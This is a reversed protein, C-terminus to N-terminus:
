EESSDDGNDDMMMGGRRYGMKGDRMKMKHAELEERSLKGDGDTDAKNFWEDQMKKRKNEKYTNIEEKTINGDGNADMKTFKEEHSAMFESKSIVGDNNKDAKEMMYGVRDSDGSKWKKMMHGEEAMAPVTSVMLAAVSLVMWKKILM